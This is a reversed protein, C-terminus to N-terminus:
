SFNKIKIINWFKMDNNRIKPTITKQHLTRKPITILKVKTFFENQYKFLIERLTQNPVIINDSMNCTTLCKKQYQLTINKQISLSILSKMTLFIAHEHYLIM